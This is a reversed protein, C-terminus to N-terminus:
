FQRSPLLPRNDCQFFTLWWAEPRLLKVRNSLLAISLYTIHHIIIAM